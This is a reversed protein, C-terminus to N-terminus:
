GRKPALRAVVHTYGTDAMKHFEITVANGHAEIPEFAAYQSIKEQGEAKVYEARLALPVETVTVSIFGELSISRIRVEGAVTEIVFHDDGSYNARISISKEPGNPVVDLFLTQHQQVVHLFADDLNLHRGAKAAKLFPQRVSEPVIMGRLASKQPDSLDAVDLSAHVLRTRQSTVHMSRLQLWDQFHELGVARVERLEIGNRAACEKAGVSFGTTSVATVKNFQFRGRRGILQEIWDGGQPGDGPRDRCEILWAIETSGIKGKIEIDFEAIPIGSDNFVRKNLAVIFGRPLLQEEVFAVLAELSKGDTM